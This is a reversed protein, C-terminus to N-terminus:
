RQINGKKKKARPKTIKKRDGRAAAAYAGEVWECLLESEEMAEPPAQYYSMAFVKDKKQYRFPELKQAEFDPRNIDDAKLYLTENAILEVMVGRRYVGFGGFM